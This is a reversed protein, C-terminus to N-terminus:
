SPFLGWSRTIWFLALLILSPLLAGLFLGFFSIKDKFAPRLISHGMPNPANAIVTLGGASMAGAVILYHKLDDFEPIELTLYSVVANDAIASLLFSVEMAWFHSLNQMLPIMWWGQLEGHIILSAFFFGILVASKLHLPSQYFSTAKWFGLFILFIGLFLPATEGSIVILVMFILHILTIWFPTPHEAEDKELTPLKKPFNDKFQKRFALYYLGTSLFIGLVVKWGFHTLMFVWDWDWRDAVIFLARSSFTTLMGGVSINVFLLGLTAYKFNRSPNYLYFKKSLMIAALAMAAPEKLLAGLLPGVTLIAWWWAGPTDKGLRAFWELVREAFTIIPRSGIVVLIVTIYIAHTYSRSNLYALAQDWSQFITFVIILPILWIGFVVEVESLLYCVESLFHYHKWKRPIIEKKESLKQSYTYLTPTLFTHLVALFFIVTSAIQFSM